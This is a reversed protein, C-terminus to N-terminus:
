TAYRYPPHVHHSSIYPRKQRPLQLIHRAYLKHHHLSLRRQPLSHTKTHALDGSAASDSRQTFSTFQFFFVSYVLSHFNSITLHPFVRSTLPNTQFFLLCNAQKFISTALLRGCPRRLTRESTEQRTNTVCLQNGIAEHRLSKSSCRM